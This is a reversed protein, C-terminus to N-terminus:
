KERTFIARAAALLQDLQKISTRDLPRRVHIEVDPSVAIREWTSRDSAPASPAPKGVPLAFLTSQAHGRPDPASTPRVAMPAPASADSGPKGLLNRIYELAKAGPEPEPELPAEDRSPLADAERVLEAVQDDDLRELRSRIEALPQHEQQLRRILRLRDLHGRAYRASPGQATPAPLLGQSIYYRVTRPTVDAADALQQLSLDTESDVAPM